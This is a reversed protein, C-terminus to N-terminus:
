RHIDRGFRARYEHARYKTGNLFWLIVNQGCKTRKRPLIPPYTAVWLGSV